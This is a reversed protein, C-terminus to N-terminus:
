RRGRRMTKSALRVTDHDPGLVERNLLQHLIQADKNIPGLVTLTNIALRATSPNTEGQNGYTGSKYESASRFDTPISGAGCMNYSLWYNQYGGPNGFHYHQIHGYRRAGCWSRQGSESTRIEAFTSTGLIVDLQGFTLTETPYRMKPDTITISYSAVAEEEVEILLWGGTLRYIQQRRLDEDSVFQPIGFLSEIYKISSGCALQNLVEMQTRRQGITRNWLRRCARTSGAFTSLLVAAGAGASLGTAVPGWVNSM